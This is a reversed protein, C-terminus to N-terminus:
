TRLLAMIGALIHESSCVITIFVNHSYDVSELQIKKSGELGTQAAWTNTSSYEGVPTHNVVSKFFFVSLNRNTTYPLLSVWLKDIHLSNSYENLFLVNKDRGWGWTGPILSFFFPPSINLALLPPYSSHFKKKSILLCQVFSVFSILKHVLCALGLM